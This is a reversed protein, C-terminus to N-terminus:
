VPRHDVVRDHPPRARELRRDTPEVMERGCAALDKYVAEDEALVQSVDVGDILEYVPPPRCSEHGGRGVGCRNSRSKLGFRNDIVAVPLRELAGFSLSDNGGPPM